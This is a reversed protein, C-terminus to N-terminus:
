HKLLCNLSKKVSSTDLSNNIDFHAVQCKAHVGADTRGSGEISLKKNGIKYDMVSDLHFYNNIDVQTKYKNKDLKLSM